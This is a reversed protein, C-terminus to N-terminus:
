YLLAALQTNALALATHSPGSLGPDAALAAFLTTLIGGLKNAPLPGNSVDVLGNKVVVKAAADAIGCEGALRASALPANLPNFGVFAFCDSLDHARGSLPAQQGGGQLWADMNRDMVVILCPDGPVPDAGVSGGGGQLTFIPVDILKPYPATTFDNPAAYTPIVQKLAPQVVALGTARDFSVIAGPLHCYLSYFISKKFNDMVDPFKPVTPTSIM